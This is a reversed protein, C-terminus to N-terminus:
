GSANELITGNLPRRASRIQNARCVLKRTANIQDAMCVLNRPLDFMSDEMPGAM